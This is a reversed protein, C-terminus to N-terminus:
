WTARVDAISVAFPFTASCTATSAAVTGALAACSIITDPGTQATVRLSVVTGLPINSAALNVTAAGAASIVVDPNLIQGGAEVPVAVGNVQTITLSPLPLTSNAPPLYLASQIFAPDTNGTFSNTTTSFRIIGAGYSSGFYPQYATLSGNGIITPAVLHIAGGAGTGGQCGAISGSVKGGAGGNANITGTVRIQTNSAIRLAGGGAGGVGGINNGSASDWGGGGGSGGYLPVLLYSGYTPGAVYNSFAYGSNIFSGNGGICANVTGSQLGAPGGGPGAGAEPGVGGQSGVGGAYGGPGPETQARGSPTGASSVTVQAGSAGSLDLTGAITVNGTALWTVAKNRLNGGLLNITVGSPINITTFNFVNDGSPDLGLAVPDFNGSVTPSYAGDSGTSGTSFQALVAPVGVLSGLALILIQQNFRM